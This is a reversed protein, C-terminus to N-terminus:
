LEVIWAQLCVFQAVPMRKSSARLPSKTCGSMTTHEAATFDTLEASQGKDKDSSELSPMLLDAHKNTCARVRLCM